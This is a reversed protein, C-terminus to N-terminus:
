LDPDTLRKPLPPPPKRVAQTPAMPTQLSLAHSYLEDESSSPSSSLPSDIPSDFPNGRINPLVDFDPIPFVGQPHDAFPLGEITIHIYRSVFRPWGVM